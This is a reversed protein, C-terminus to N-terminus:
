KNNYANLVKKATLNSKLNTTDINVILIGRNKLEEVVNNFILVHKEIDNLKLHKENHKVFRKKIENIDTILYVFFSNDKKMKNVFYKENINRNYIRSYVIQSIYSRVVVLIKGNSLKIIERRVSDKGTKDVGDLHIIGHKLLNFNSNM